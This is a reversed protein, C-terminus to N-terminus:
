LFPETIRPKQFTATGTGRLISDEAEPFSPPDTAPDEEVEAPPSPPVEEPAFAPAAVEAPPAAAPEPPPVCAAICDAETAHVMPSSNLCPTFYSVQGNVSIQGKTLAICEGTDEDFGYPVNAPDSM